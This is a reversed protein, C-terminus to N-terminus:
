NIQLKKFTSSENSRVEVIYLGTSLGNIPLEIRQAGQTSNNSTSFVLKGQVDLLRVETQASKKLDFEVFANSSAPNPYINLKNAEINSSSTSPSLVANIVHVVGNSAEVDPLTVQAENIFVDGGSITVTVDSGQLTEIMQGNSLDTSFAVSGVVHYTLLNTLATQNALLADLTGAPLAAFAADTPAFVTLTALPDTLAPLLRAAVVATVLTNFNNDIAVDVVTESPLVVANIIHVVGNDSTIDTATVQAQNVYVDGTTTVTLKLTNTTSLPQVIAGNTVGAALVETGLVHYTLIDALNPLALLGAIDTGLATAINSFATNTPAFVTLTALPNTLAPLLEATVVATALTTFGNDLAIDVVTESPLVVADIVHVVGNDATIDTAAVQAQNVFVDGTSTLTLKLTNTASLPQVIAGNTIDAALVETGLVHYTLIDALNPLALLGAIDTGLATAINTFATNTPAFVTLTALPNTLAPLLEATVVATALTTFGNDLAIDVVTESPLVVADIVHVVGNDATIDTAAVQAQNVFVDGTSTLTLKLTNTASLPQVIAGNTIDAALVETGLVHYTLIDALNPLALLGAIDTGLATAINDFAANTPAFVTLTALPNTLAPLLEATVVATALSTFGNDIAIDVVTESPLVVADIVHVVGNDATIDTAAVQAQNVFVDGTSTLTLKLTNTASLPQVIAGNTIDAALVETGLVHYTLIDALNPLALLGAIDTGLATAINDFAANTPAFVTLTALPNTLAPLLEATVVATTLSTFGNDIAIDVVTESPLVVANISHVVGNSGILDAANVQAQNVFVDGTSTLTLKLTNTTSLPSVIAGNTVATSLVETNLVHYTLIDTLNPLALVGAIDTGLAAAIANIANDDPAFVTYTASTNNLAVDLGQQELAAQLLNHNPSNAIIGFVTQSNGQLAFLLVTVSFLFKKM